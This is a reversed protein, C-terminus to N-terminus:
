DNKIGASNPIDFECCGSRCSLQKYEIKSPVHCMLQSWSTNDRFTYTSQGLSTDFYYYLQLGLFVMILPANMAIAFM